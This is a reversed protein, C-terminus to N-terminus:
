PAHKPVEAVAEFVYEHQSDRLVLTRPGTGAGVVFESGSVGPTITNFSVSGDANHRSALESTWEGIDVFTRGDKQFMRLQGLSKSQYLPALRSADAVDAPLTWRSKRLKVREKLSEGATVLQKDALPEGDFLLELLKRLFPGRLAGGTDANTLIVAGVGYEPLWLMDSHFGVLDGGHHVVQVGWTNDVMLGMAYFVDHTLGVQRERRKLLAPEGIFRKGDPLVGKSLEVSVYKLVDNVSSWAAGAPRMSLVSYNPAMTAVYQQGELNFAHPEAHSGRLAKAFDFTTATMGLPNFIRQQMAQDYAAGLEAQPSLVHGSMFGAAGAMLNSYQFLEGFKTTPQMTGLLAMASAPTADKYEFWWEM